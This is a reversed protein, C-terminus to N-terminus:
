VGETILDLVAAELAELREMTSIPIPLRSLNEKMTAIEEQTMEVYEGNEYKKM